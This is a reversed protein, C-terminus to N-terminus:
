EVAYGLARLQKAEMEDIEVSVAGSRRITRPGRNGPQLQFRSSRIEWNQFHPWRGVM